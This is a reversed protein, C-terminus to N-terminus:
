PGSREERHQDCFALLGRFGGRFRWVRCSRGSPQDDRDTRMEHDCPRSRLALSRRPWHLTDAIRYAGRAGHCEGRTSSGSEAPQPRATRTGLEPDGCGILLPTTKLCARNEYKALSVRDGRGDTMAAAGFSRSALDSDVMVKLEHLRELDLRTSAPDYSGSFSLAEILRRVLM